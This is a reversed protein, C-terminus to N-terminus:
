SAILELFAAAALHRPEVHIDDVANACVSVTRFSFPFLNLSGYRNLLTSFKVFGPGKRVRQLAAKM